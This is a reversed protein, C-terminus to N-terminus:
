AGAGQRRLQHRIYLGDVGEDGGGDAPEDDRHEREKADGPHQQPDVPPQGKEDDDEVGHDDREGGLHGAFHRFQFFLLVPGDLHELRSQRLGQIKEALDAGGILLPTKEGPEFHSRPLHFVTADGEAPLAVGGAPEAVEGKQAPVLDEAGGTDQGHSEAGEGDAHHQRNEAIQPVHHRRHLLDQADLVGQVVGFRGDFPDVGDEGHGHLRGIRM